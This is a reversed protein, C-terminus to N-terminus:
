AAIAEPLTNYKKDDDPDVDIDAPIVQLAIANERDRHGNNLKQSSTCFYINAPPGAQLNAVFQLAADITQFSRGDFKKIGPRQWHITIYGGSHWPVVNALFDRAYVSIDSQRDTTNM